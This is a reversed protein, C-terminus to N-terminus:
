STRYTILYSIMPGAQWSFLNATFSAKLTTRFPLKGFYGHLVAEVGIAFIESLITGTLYTFPGTMFGFFIFSHTFVNSLTVLLLTATPSYHKRYFIWFVPVELTSSRLFLYFYDM